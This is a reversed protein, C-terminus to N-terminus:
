VTHGVRDQTVDRIQRAAVGFPEECGQSLPESSHQSISSQFLVIFPVFTGARPTDSVGTFLFLGGRQPLLRAVSYSPSLFTLSGATAPPQLPIKARGQDWRWGELKKALGGFYRGAQEIARWFVRYRIVANGPLRQRAM